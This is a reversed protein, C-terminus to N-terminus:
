FFVHSRPQSMAVAALDRDVYKVDPGQYGALIVPRNKEKGCTDSM